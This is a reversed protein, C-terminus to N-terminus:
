CRGPNKCEQGNNPVRQLFEGMHGIYRDFTQFNVAPCSNLM